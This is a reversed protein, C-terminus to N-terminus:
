GSFLFTHLFRGPMLAGIGAGILGAFAGLMCGVHARRNGLRAYLLGAVVSVVTVVSLGHIWSLGERQIWFSSIAAVLMLGVWVRGIARHVATGKPSTLQVIGLAIAPIVTVLHVGIQPSIEM